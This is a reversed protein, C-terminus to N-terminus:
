PERDNPDYSSKPKMLDRVVCLLNSKSHSLKENWITKPETREAM